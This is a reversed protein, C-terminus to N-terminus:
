WKPRNMPAKELLWLMLDALGPTLSPPEPTSILPDSIPEINRVNDILKDFPLKYDGFPLFGRRLEYLVCGLCWFDSAFSSVGESTFLEPALYPPIGRELLNKNGLSERPIKQTFKFDSIKVIGYEDVLFNRPRLDGHVFGQSHLYKLGMLIDIGFIRISSEPLHGDQKLINELDGGTCYELIVWLNNKTEYWDYFKLM